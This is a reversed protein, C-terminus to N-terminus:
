IARTFTYPSAKWFGPGYRLIMGEMYVLAVPNASHLMVEAPWFDAEDTQLQEALWRVVERGENELGPIGLDNDLSLVGVEGKHEVLLRSCEQVTYARLYGPPTRRADDLYINVM